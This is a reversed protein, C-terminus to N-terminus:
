REAARKAALREAEEYADLVRNADWLDVISWRSEIEELSSSYRPSSAVRHIEWDVADPLKV